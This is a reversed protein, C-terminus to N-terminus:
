RLSQYFAFMRKQSKLKQHRHTSIVTKRSTVGHAKPLYAFVKQLRMNEGDQALLDSWFTPVTRDSLVCPVM